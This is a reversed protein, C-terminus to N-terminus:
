RRHRFLSFWERGMFTFVAFGLVACLGTFRWNVQGEDLSLFAVLGGIIVGFVAGIRLRDGWTETNQEHM